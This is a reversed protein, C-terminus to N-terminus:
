LIRKQGVERQSRDVRSFSLEKARLLEELFRHLDFRDGLRVEEQARDEVVLSLELAGDLVKLARDLEIRFVFFRDVVEAEAIEIAVPVAFRNLAELFRELEIRVLHLVLM